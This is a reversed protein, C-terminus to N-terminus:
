QDGIAKVRADTDVELFKYIDRIFPHRKYGYLWPQQLDSGIRHTQGKYPAYAILLRHADLMVANREPGDPMSKQKDYLKDFEPLSFRSLNNEGKAPGYGMMVFTDPDPAVASFGLSWMQYNGARAKKLNDPWKAPVFEIKIGIANLDKKTMEDFQRSIQDSQSLKRIVLPSGDPLDRWGDNNRDVYGYLDLLAKARKPSYVSMDSKFTPDFGTTGPAQLINAEVAQGRRGLRIEADINHALSMARRLAVKDPTYGGVIPDDMNFVGLTLDSLATRQLKIGQKELNPALKNNPIAVQIFSLPIGQLMDYEGNLFSLWRPQEENLISIEIRDNVPIRKGKLRAAIEQGVKDDAAPNGSFIVERYDPNRELVIKSARRWAVLKYPGTGVPKEGIRDGYAEVVERAVVGHLSPDTFSEMFRPTADRTKFQVTYNDLAKVGEVAEDYPFPTKNKIAAARLENLGLLNSSQLSNIAYSKLKPDYHRKLSYVVDQAVLERKKGKFAPDNAFFIGKKIKVTFTKFDPSVEPMGDALQPVVQVPRALYDFTYLSELIGAVITRSYLDSIQAPDLMTEGAPFAYRVVKENLKAEFRGSALVQGKESKADKKAAEKPADKAPPTSQQAASLAPLGMAALCLSAALPAFFSSMKRLLPNLLLSHRNM